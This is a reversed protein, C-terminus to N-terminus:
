YTILRMKATHLRVTIHSSMCPTEGDTHVWMPEETEIEAENLTASTIGKFKTHAGSYAYPFIRFFDFQSLHDAICIDLTNDNDIAKPCFKFGGGEYPENMIVSLLLEDYTKKTKDVRITGKVRKTTAIIHIATFIYILKGMHLKNLAKKYKSIGAEHCIAADFGIGASIVFRRHNKKTTETEEFRNHYIVEGVDIKREIHSHLLKRVHEVPDKDYNQSRAFDNGSGVSIMAIRVNDFDAIGNVAQNLTGDGGIIFLDCPNVSLKRVIDTISENASSFHVNYEHGCERFLPQIREWMKLSGGTAGYPNIVIEYM